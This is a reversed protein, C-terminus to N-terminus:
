QGLSPTGDMGVTQCGNRVDYGIMFLADELDRLTVRQQPPKANIEKVAKRLIRGARWCWKAHDGDPNTGSRLCPFTYPPCSPNRPHTARKQSTAQGAGWPFCLEDPVTNPRPDCQQLYKRVLFGLGAGVRGDYIPIHDPAALAYVKTMGSNMVLDNGDFCLWNQRVPRKLLEVAKNIKQRLGKDACSERLWASSVGELGGWELIELCVHHLEHYSSERVESLCRQLRESLEELRSRTTERGGRNWQYKGAAAELSRCQWEVGSRRDIYTHEFKIWAGVLYDIFAQGYCTFEEETAVSIEQTEDRCPDTMDPHPKRPVLMLIGNRIEIERRPIQIGCDGGM